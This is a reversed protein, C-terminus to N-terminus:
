LQRIQFLAIFYHRRIKAAFFINLTRADVLGIKSVEVVLGKLATVTYATARGM